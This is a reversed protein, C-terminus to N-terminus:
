HYSSFTGITIYLHRSGRDVDRQVPLRAARPTRSNLEAVVSGTPVVVTVTPIVRGRRGNAPTTTTPLVVLWASVEVAILPAGLALNSVHAGGVSSGPTIRTM